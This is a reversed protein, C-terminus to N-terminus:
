GGAAVRTFRARLQEIDASVRLAASIAADRREERAMLWRLIDGVTPERQATDDRQAMDSAQANADPAQTSMQPRLHILALGVIPRAEWGVAGRGIAGSVEREGAAQLSALLDARGLPAYRALARAEFEHRAEASQTPAILKPPLGRLLSLEFIAAAWEDWALLAALLDHLSRDRPLTAARWRDEGVQDALALTILRRERLSQILAAGNDGAASASVGIDTVTTDVAASAAVDPATNLATAGGGDMNVDVEVDRDGSTDQRNTDDM